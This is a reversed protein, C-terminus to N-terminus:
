WRTLYPEVLLRRVGGVRMGLIGYYLAPFGRRKGIEVAIPPHPGACDDACKMKLRASCDRTSYLQEGGHVFCDYHVVAVTHQEAARGTGVVLDDVKMGPPIKM